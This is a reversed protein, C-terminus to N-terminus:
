DAFEGILLLQLSEYSNYTQLFTSYIFTTSITMYYHNINKYIYGKHPIIEESVIGTVQCKRVKMPSPAWFNIMNTTINIISTQLLTVSKISFIIILLLPKHYIPYFLDSFLRFTLYIVAFVILRHRFWVQISVAFKWGENNFCLRLPSSNWALILVFDPVQLQVKLMLNYINRTHHWYKSPIHEVEVMTLVSLPKVSVLTFQFWKM